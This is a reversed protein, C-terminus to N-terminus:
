GTKEVSATVMLSWLYIVCTGAAVVGSDNFIFAAIMGAFIGASAIRYGIHQNRVVDMANGYKIFIPISILYVLLLRSWISSRILMLNMVLKRKILLGIQSSGGSTLAGFARGLHSEGSQGRMVDFAILGALVAAVGVAIRLLSKLDFKRQSSVALATGFATVISIAGGTNIGLSPSGILATGVIMGIILSIRITRLSWKGYVAALGIGALMAGILAGMVENGMGYYRSGDVVSYGIISQGCLHGGTLMDIAVLVTFFISLNMLSQMPSRSTYRFILTFIITAVSVFVWTALLGEWPMLGTLLLAPLMSPPILAIVCVIRHRKSRDKFAFWILLLLIAIGILLGAAQRLVPINTAQRSANMNTATLAEVPSSSPDISVPRGVAETPAPLGFWNLISPAIDLNTVVGSIRTSGSTLLGRGIGKGTVLIPCLSNGTKELFSYSPYPSLVILIGNKGLLGELRGIFSDAQKLIESKRSVYAPDTMDPMARELRALDGFEVAIFGPKDTNISRSIDKLLLDSEDRMLYRSNGSPLVEVNGDDVLGNGDMALMVAERHLDSDDSNGFVSRRIGASKLASGLLGITVKYNFVANDKQLRAIETHVVQSDGPDILTRRQYVNGASSGELPTAANYAKWSDAGAAARSGAGITLYGAEPTYKINENRPELIELIRGATKSNMLGIAGNNMIEGISSKSDSATLDDLTVGPITLLVIKLPSATSNASYANNVILSIFIAFLLM